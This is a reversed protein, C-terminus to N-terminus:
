DEERGLTPLPPPHYLLTPPGVTGDEDYFPFQLVFSGGEGNLASRLMPGINKDIDPNELNVEATVTTEKLRLKLQGCTLRLFNALAMAKRANSGRPVPCTLEVITAGRPTEIYDVLVERLGDEKRM